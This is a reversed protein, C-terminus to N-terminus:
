SGCRTALRRLTPPSDFAPLSLEHQSVASFGSIRLGYWYPVATSSILLGVATYM